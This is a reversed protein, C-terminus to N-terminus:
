KVKKFIDPRKTVIDELKDKYYYVIVQEGKNRIAQRVQEDHKKISPGDHPTGDCFVHVDPGYFFDPQSYIGDVYKQAQDPLRFGNKYLYKLFKLETESTPDISKLFHQYHEEYNQFAQNAQIEINCIKLKELADKILFRNIRKHDRQNYYSLLDDYSANDKYDPEDYRCIKIAEVIVKNFTAPDDMFQSLVGLSGESSEYILINPNVSDGILTVGLEQTEIQFINEIAQKFAYQLTLVGDAELALPKIPQIYLVDANDTTFLKVRKHEESQEPKELVSQKKWIGSRMGMLFGDEPSIHWKKNIQVLQAVPIYRLYIFEDEENRIIAKKITEIGAPVSFFVETDYGRSMRDEEECSIRMMRETRTESMELLDTFIEGNKNETLSVRTVPCTERDYEDGMMWYGSTTCVKAKKLKQEPESIIMQNIKYKSGCHYVINGPGFERLAIFRSRSIYEGSDGKPIWTRLPLRTFNYGPLFGESALYRYPYFESFSYKSVQNKLIDIQITAQIQNRRANKMEQSNTTYLGSNIVNNAELLQQKAAFYLKRWRNISKDFRLPAHKLQNRIWDENYLIGTNSTKTSIQLLIKKYIEVIENTVSQSINLKSEVVSKIPLTDPRTDDLIDFISNNLESLGVKSMYIAYLHTILLEENKLDIRPPIVVGAVMDTSHHFYHRDHQSYVSCNVFVMSTQGSRGARGSRQAYNAPNPPVNRMHVSNLSKIDIGLEMTPSCFLTSLTGERFNDEIEIRDENKIQGTHEKAAMPRISKFDSKYLDQFYANPKLDVTKYTIKKVPDDNITKEDGLCWILSDIKLQYVSIQENNRNLAITSKLWGADVMMDMLLKIFEPYDSRSIPQNTTSAERRLYKGLASQYGISSSYIKSNRHLPEYRMFCPVAIKDNEDLTWPAKLKERIEKTNESIRGPNLYYESHLAYSKRFYELIQYLVKARKESSLQSIFPIGNWAENLASNEHLNTYQFYLLACQELNPLVIRWGRKLDDLILYFLYTKFVEEQQSRTAPFDSPNELYVEPLLDIDGFVKDAINSHNLYNHKALSRYVASRFKIVMVYDNFHGAQLSADQRNDTFSLIKQENVPFGYMGLHKIISYTLITTSTSRGESGLRSLKTGENTKSDYITGCTPDFLLKTPMYWGSQDYDAEFSFHGSASFYIRRPIRNRYKKDVKTFGDRDTKLWSDPLENKDDPEWVEENGPIIYGNTFDEEDEFQEKFDRPEITNDGNKLHVCIFEHGSIRSFVVPYLPKKNEETFPIQDLTIYRKDPEELSVFVSGTQSVFQHIRFPLYSYKQNDMKSNLEALWRLYHVVKERCTAIDIDTYSSLKNIIDNLTCPTRRVLISDIEQLAIENEIWISLPYSKLINEDGISPIESKLIKIIDSKKLDSTNGFCRVLYENVIQDEKFEKGFILSAVGALALKQDQITSGSVMTASTGICQVEQKCQAHIRRILMSIDSGQRGRYTHLEDFVLIKLNNSISNQLSYEKSRTLILELMMYNTLLIDPPNTRIEFRSEENEQGTYKAYRIPFEKKSNVEYQNHFDKIAEFQSNILANMPYVIIAKIGPNDLHNFCYNFITGLFTLSKGSGTGSTLIFNRGSAGIKLAEEQHKFLAFDKFITSLEQHLIGRNCLNDIPGIQEFSPNFQILPEPWFKGSRLQEGVYENIRKDKINIFSSVYNKYDNVITSHIKLIDSSKNM